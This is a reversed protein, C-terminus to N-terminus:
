PDVTKMFNIFASREVISLPLGLKIILDNVIATSLETQRPYTTHYASHQSAQNRKRFHQSIKNKQNTSSM